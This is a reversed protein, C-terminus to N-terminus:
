DPFLFQFLGAKRYMYYCVPNKLPSSWSNIRFAYARFLFPLAEHPPHVRFSASPPRGSVKSLVIEFSGRWHEEKRTQWEKLVTFLVPFYTPSISSGVSTVMLHRPRERSHHTSYQKPRGTLIRNKVPAEWIQHAFYLELKWSWGESRRM